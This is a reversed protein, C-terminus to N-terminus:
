HGGNGWRYGTSALITGACSPYKIAFAGIGARRGDDRKRL